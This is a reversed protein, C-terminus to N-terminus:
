GAASHPTAWSRPLGTIWRVGASHVTWVLQAVLSPAGGFRVTPEDLPVREGWLNEPRDSSQNRVEDDAITHAERPDASRM